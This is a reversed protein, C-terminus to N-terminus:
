YLSNLITLVLINCPLRTNSIKNRIYILPSNLNFAIRNEKYISLIERIIAKILKFFFILISSLSTVLSYLSPALLAISNSKALVSNIYKVVELFALSKEKLSGLWSTILGLFITLHSLIYKSAPSINLCYIFVRVAWAM